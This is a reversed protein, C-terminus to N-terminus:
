RQRERFTAIRELAKQVDPEGYVVYQKDVVVAPVKSVGLSWANAVDQHAQSIRAALKPNIRQQLLAQAKDPDSPLNASLSAELTAPHDVLIVQANALATVPHAADTIVLTSALLAPSCLLCLNTAAARLFRLVPM